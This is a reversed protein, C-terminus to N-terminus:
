RRTRTRSLLLARLCGAGTARKRRDPPNRMFAHGSKELVARGGAKEVTRRVADSFKIDVVATEQADSFHETDEIAFIMAVEDTPLHAGTEDVFAVRDDDGDWAIGISNPRSLVAESLPRLNETRNCDAPRSPFRGDPKCAICDFALGLRRFVGAAALSLAGNGPTL